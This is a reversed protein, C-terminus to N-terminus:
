EEKKCLMHYEESQGEWTLMMLILPGFIGDPLPTHYVALRIQEVVEKIPIPMPEKLARPCYRELFKEAHKDLGKAYIYPVLHKTLADEARFLERSYESAYGISAHQLGNKLTTPFPISLWCATSDSEYDRRGCGSIEVM